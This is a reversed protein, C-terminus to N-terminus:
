PAWHGRVVKTFSLPRRLGSAWFEPKVTSVVSPQRLSLETALDEDEDGAAGGIGQLSSGAARPLEPCSGYNLSGPTMLGSASAAGSRAKALAKSARLADQKRGEEFLTRINIEKIFRQEDANNNRAKFYVPGDERPIQVPPLKRRSCYVGAACKQEKQLQSKWGNASDITDVLRAM